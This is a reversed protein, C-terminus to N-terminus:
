GNEGKHWNADRGAQVNTSNPGGSQKQVLKRSKVKRVGVFIGVVALGVGIWTGIEEVNTLALIFAM